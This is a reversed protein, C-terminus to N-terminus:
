GLPNIFCDNGIDMAICRLQIITASGTAKILSFSKRQFINCTTGFQKPSPVQRINTQKLRVHLRIYDVNRHWKTHNM